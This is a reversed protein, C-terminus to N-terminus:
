RRTERDLRANLENFRRDVEGSYIEHEQQTYRTPASDRFQEIAHEVRGTFTGFWIAFGIVPILNAIVVGFLWLRMKDLKREIRDDVWHILGGLDDLDDTKKFDVM